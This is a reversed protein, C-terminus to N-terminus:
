HRNYYTILRTSVGAVGADGELDMRIGMEEQSPWCLEGARLDLGKYGGM